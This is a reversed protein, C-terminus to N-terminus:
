EEKDLNLLNFRYIQRVNSYESKEIKQWTLQYFRMEIFDLVEGCLNEMDKNSLCIEDTGVSNYEPDTKTIARKSFVTVNKENSIIHAAKFTDKEILRENTLGSYVLLGHLLLTATDKLEAYLETKAKISQRMKEYGPVFYNPHVNLVRCLNALNEKSPPKKNNEWNSITIRTVGVATGLEDQTIGRDRRLSYLTSGDFDSHNDNM